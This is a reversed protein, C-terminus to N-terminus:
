IHTPSFLETMYGVHRTYTQTKFTSGLMDAINKTASVSSACAQPAETVRQNYAFFHM